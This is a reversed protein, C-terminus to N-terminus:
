GDSDLGATEGPRAGQLPICCTRAPSVSGDDRREWWLESRSQRDAQPCVVRNSRVLLQVYRSDQVVMGEDVCTISTRTAGVDVVCSTSIGASFISTYSEQWTLTKAIGDDVLARAPQRRVSLTKEIRFHVQHIAIEKFGMTDMLLSTMEQIYFRDGHDPVILVVSFNQMGDTQEWMALLSLIVRLDKPSINMETRLAELIILGIDDM